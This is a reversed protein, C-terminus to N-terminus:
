TGALSTVAEDQAADDSGEPLPRVFFARYFALIMTAMSGLLLVASLFRYEAMQVSLFRFAFLMAGHLAFGGLVLSWRTPDWGREPDRVLSEIALAFVVGAVLDVGYHWGMGLTAIITCVTWFTGFARIAWPQRRTHVFILVTWATHLSPMCNRPTFDDFRFAQPTLDWPVANPWPAGRIAFDGGLSGYAFIPGVVPFVLYFIPGIMAVLLFSRVIHHSPWGKRLQWIAVLMAGVPLEIYVTEIIRQVIPGSADLARGVFWSPNGLAHDATQVFQDLVMPRAEVTIRLWTDSMKTGMILMVGLGVAKLADSRDKGDWRTWAIAGIALMVIFPGNGYTLRTDFPLRALFFLADIALAAGVAKIRQEKNLSILTLAFAVWIVRGRKPGGVLDWILHETPGAFGYHRSTIEMALVFAVLGVAAAVLVGRPARPAVGASVRSAM